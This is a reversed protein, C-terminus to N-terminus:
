NELVDQKKIICFKKLTENKDTLLGILATMTMDQSMNKFSALDASLQVLTTAMEAARATTLGMGTGMDGFLAASDLATQQALGMASISTKSWEVVAQANTKFTQETKGM